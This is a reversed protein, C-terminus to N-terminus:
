STVEERSIPPELWLVKARPSLVCSISMFNPRNPPKANIAKKIEGIIRGRMLKVADAENDSTVPDVGLDKSYVTFSRKAVPEGDVTVIETEPEIVIRCRYGGLKPDWGVDPLHVKAKPAKEPQNPM